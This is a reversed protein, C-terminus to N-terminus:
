VRVATLSGDAKIVVKLEDGVTYRQQLSEFEESTLYLVLRNAYNRLHTQFQPPVMVRVVDKSAELMDSIEKPMDSPVVTPMRPPRYAFEITVYENGSNDFTTHLSMVRAVFSVESM